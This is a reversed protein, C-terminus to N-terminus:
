LRLLAQHQCGRREGSALATAAAITSGHDDAAYPMHGSMVAYDDQLQSAGTYEGQLLPLRRTLALHLGHHQWACPPPLRVPPLQCRGRYGSGVKSFQTIPKYYGIGAPLTCLDICAADAYVSRLGSHAAAGPFAASCCGASGPACRRCAGMIPAWDGQGSYYGVTATGDHYLGM